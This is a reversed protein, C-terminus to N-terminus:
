YNYTASYSVNVKTSIDNKLISPILGAIADPLTVGFADLLGGKGVVKTLVSTPLTITLTQNTNLTALKWSKDAAKVTGTMNLPAKDLDVLTTVISKVDTTGFVKTLIKGLKTNADGQKLEVDKYGALVQNGLDYVKSLDAPKSSSIKEGDVTINGLGYLTLMKYNEAIFDKLITGTGNGWKDMATFLGDQDTGNSVHNPDVEQGQLEGPEYVAGLPENDGNRLALLQKGTKDVVQDLGKIAFKNVKVKSTEGEIDVNANLTVKAFNAIVTEDLNLAVWEGEPARVDAPVKILGAIISLGKPMSAKVDSITADINMVGDATYKRTMNITANDVKVQAVGAVDINIGGIVIKETVSGNAKAFDKEFTAMATAGDLPEPGGCAVLAFMSMALVLVVAVVLVKSLKKSM